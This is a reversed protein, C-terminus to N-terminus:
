SLLRNRVNKLKHLDRNSNFNVLISYSKTITGQEQYKIRLNNLSTLKIEDPQVVNKIQTISTFKEVDKTFIVPLNLNHLSNFFGDMKPCFLMFHENFFLEAKITLGGSATFKSMQSQNWRIELHDYELHQLKALILKTRQKQVTSILSVLLFLFLVGSSLVLMIQINM